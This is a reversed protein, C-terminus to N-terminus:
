TQTKARQPSPKDVVVLQCLAREFQSRYGVLRAATQLRQEVLTVQSKSQKEVRPRRGRSRFRGLWNYATAESQRFSLVTRPIMGVGKTARSSSSPRTSRTYRSGFILRLESAASSGCTRPTRLPPCTGRARPAFALLFGSCRAKPRKQASLRRTRGCSRLESHSQRRIM